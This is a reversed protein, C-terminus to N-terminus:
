PVLLVITSGLVHELAWVIEYEDIFSNLMVPPMFLNLYLSLM